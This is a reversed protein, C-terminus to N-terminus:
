PAIEFNGAQVLSGNLYIQLEWKGDPLVSNDEYYINAWTVGNAPGQWDLNYDTFKVGNVYWLFQIQSGPGLNFYEFLGYVYTIGYRFSFGPDVAQNNEDIASAFTIPGIQSGTVPPENKPEPPQEAGPPQEFGPMPSDPSGVLLNDFNVQAEGQEYNQIFLGLRGTTFASDQAQGLHIGNAFISLQDDACVLRLQNTGMGPTIEPAAKWDILAQYSDNQVRYLSFMGAGTVLFVYGSLLSANGAASTLSGQYIIRCGLGYAVNNNTPGSVLSATVDIAGSELPPGGVSWTMNESSLADILYVGDQYAVRGLATDQVPWGSAPNSFDDGYPQGTEIGPPQILNVSYTPDATPVQRVSSITLTVKPTVTPDILTPLSVRCALTSTLIILLLFGALKVRM